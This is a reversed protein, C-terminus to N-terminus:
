KEPQRFLTAGASESLCLFVMIHLNICTFIYTMVTHYAAQVKRTKHRNVNAPANLQVM